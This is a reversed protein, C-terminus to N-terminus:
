LTNKLNEVVTTVADDFTIAMRSAPHSKEKSLKCFSEDILTALQHPENPDFLRGNEENILCESGCNRSLLVYCGGLLAENTVAGFAEQTSALVFIDGINFWARIEDDDYRGAFIIEKGTASALTKLEAEMPGDGVFVTSFDSKTKSIAEILMPLNKVDALRGVYLLVKKGNLHFKSRFMDSITEAAKYRPLEVKEDRMIPMWIGKGYHKQYWDRVKDNVVIIDDLMPAVIKRAITHVFTFDNNNSVMDYSDDCMSIVRIKRKVLWKYALVQLTLIKYEPVIIVDPNNERIIKWIGKFYPIGLFKGKSLIIQDFVCRSEINDLNFNQTDDTRSMFHMKCGLVRNLANYTDVRYPAINTRFFLNAM